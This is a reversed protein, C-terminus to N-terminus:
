GDRDVAVEGLDLDVVVEFARRRAGSRARRARDRGRTRRGAMAATEVTLMSSRHHVDAGFRPGPVYVNRRHRLQHDHRLPVRAWVRTGSSSRSWSRSPSPRRGPITPASRATRRAAACAATAVCLIMFSRRRAQGRRPADDDVTGARTGTPRDCFCPSTSTARRAAAGGPAARRHRGSHVRCGVRQPRSRGMTQEAVGYNSRRRRIYALAVISLASRQDIFDTTGATPRHVRSWASAADDRAAAPRGTGRRSDAASREHRPLFRSGADAPAAGVIHPPVHQAGACDRITWPAPASCSRARRGLRSTASCRRPGVSQQLRQREEVVGSCRARRPPRPSRVTASCGAAVAVAGRARALRGVARLARRRPRRRARRVDKHHTPVVVFRTNPRTRPTPTSSSPWDAVGADGVHPPESENRSESSALPPARCATEERTSADSVLVDTYLNQSGSAVFRCSFRARFDVARSVARVRRDLLRARTMDPRRDGRRELASGAARRVETCASNVVDDCVVNM